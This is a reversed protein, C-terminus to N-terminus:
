VARSEYVRLVADRPSPLEHVSTEFGFQRLREPLDDGFDTVVRIGGPSRPDIHLVPPKGERSSTLAGAVHPVTFIHRGGARLTRRIEAFAAWPEDVHELVESTIILDFSSDPFSLRRLDENRHGGIFSGSPSGPYFESSTWSAARARINKVFLGFAAPEFVRAGDLWRQAIAALGRMRYNRGCWLCHYNERTAQARLTGESYPWAPMRRELTRNVNLVFLSPRGCSACRGAHPLQMVSAIRRRTRLVRVGFSIM